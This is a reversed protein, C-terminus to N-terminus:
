RAAAVRLSSVSSRRSPSEASEIVPRYPSGRLGRSVAELVREPLRLVAREAGHHEPTM